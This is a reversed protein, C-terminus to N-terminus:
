KVESDVKVSDKPVGYRITLKRRGWARAKQIDTGMYIDIRNKWKSHMKDRVLFIGDFGDIKVPTDRKLGLQLLNRSIAISPIQVSLSDGWAAIFPDGFTQATTSNYATATVTLPKWIYQDETTSGCSATALFVLVLVFKFGIKVKTVM